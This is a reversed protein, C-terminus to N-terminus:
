EARQLALGDFKLEQAAGWADSAKHSSVLLIRDQLRAILREAIRRAQEGDLHEGPEDLLIMPLPSLLARALNLRHAEGLSLTDQTIWGDLGGALRVREGLEVVNLAAWREADAADPAFLNERVSDSLVAADHLGLYALKRRSSAALEIGDGILTGGGDAELWGAVQKLLSTKGCGSPGSLVTPRGAELILDVTGGLPRGNPACRRLAIIELRSLHFPRSRAPADDPSTGATWAKLAKSAAGEKVRAHLIRSAGQAIEGLALWAFAVFAAALLADGRQGNLWASGLVALSAIPGLLGVLADAFAMRRRSLLLRADARSLAAFSTTLTEPWAHEAQLPVVAGLATGLRRGAARRRLRAFHWDQALSPLLWRACAAVGLLIPLVVVLAMPAVFLTAAVAFALGTATALLPLQVRLKAFDLNEVDDIFDALRDQDGLQWSVSRVRPAAAMASFLMARRSVQDLLAAKHGALREGYKAATRAMAFLRILAAPFHFNFTYAAGGAGALAVAGLFWVSVGTLLISAFLAVLALLVALRWWFISGRPAEGKNEEPSIFVSM